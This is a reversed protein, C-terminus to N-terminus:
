LPLGFRHLEGLRPQAFEAVRGDGGGLQGVQQRHGAHLHFLHSGGRRWERIDDDGFHKAGVAMRVGIPQRHTLHIGAGARRQGDDAACRVHTRSDLHRARQDTGLQRRAVVTHRELDRQILQATDLALAHQARCPLQLQRVVMGPQQHQRGICTHPLANALVQREVVGQERQLERGVEAVTQAHVADRAFHSRQGARWQVRRLGGTDRRRMVVLQAHLDLRGIQASAEGPADHAIDVRASGRRGPHDISQSAAPLARHGCEDVDRVVHHELVPTRRVDEVEVLNVTAQGHAPTAAAFRELQEVAVGDLDVLLDAHNGVILRYLREGADHAAIRRGDGVLRFVDVDLRREPPGFRHRSSRPAVVERGVGPVAELAADVGSQRDLMDLADGLEDDVDAAAIGPRHTVLDDRQRLALRDRQADIARGLHDAHRERLRM